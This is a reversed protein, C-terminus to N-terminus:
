LGGSTDAPPRASRLPPARIKAPRRHASRLVPWPWGPRSGSAGPRPSLGTRPSPALDGPQRCGRSGGASLWCAVVTIVAEIDHSPCVLM